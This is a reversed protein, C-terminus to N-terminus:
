KSKAAPAAETFTGDTRLVFVSTSKQLAEAQASLEESAAASEQSIAANSQVVQSVQQIGLHIQGLAAAQENSAESLTMVLEAANSVDALIKSFSGATDKAIKTGAEVSKASHEILDTTEKAAKSSQAALNKVEEAVVAFGKGYQGARAAEVAANLALINTQFAIDEIAKIIRRINESSSNIEDMARLMETMEANGNAADSKIKGALENLEKATQATQNTQSTIGDLSATLEEISSAQEAAGQALTTSSDAVLRASANMQHASSVISAVLKHLDEVLSSMAKGMSDNASRVTVATTLDGAAIAKTETIQKLTSATMNAFAVALAGVEDKRQMFRQDKDEMVKGIELDGVALLEGFKAFKEVPKSILGSIFLGLALSLGISVVQVGIIAIASNRAFDAEEEATVAARYSVQELLEIFSDRLTTGLSVLAPNIEEEEGRLAAECLEQMAPKYTDWDKQIKDLLVNIDPDAITARCLALNEDLQAFSDNLENVVQELTERDEAYLRRLNSYRIQMYAVATEGAYQLGVTDEKYLRTNNNRIRLVSIIGVAGTIISLLLIFTFAIILKRSIKMNEFWTKMHDTGKREHAYKRTVIIISVICGINLNFQL